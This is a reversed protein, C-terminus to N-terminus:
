IRQAHSKSVVRAAHNHSEFRGALRALERCKSVVDYVFDPDHTGDADRFEIEDDLRHRLNLVACKLQELTM